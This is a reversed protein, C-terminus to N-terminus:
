PFHKRLIYFVPAPLDMEGVGTGIMYNASIM